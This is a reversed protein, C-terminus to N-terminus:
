ASTIHCHSLFFFSVGVHLAHESKLFPELSLSDLLTVLQLIVLAQHGHLFMNQTQILVFVSFCCLILNLLCMFFVEVGILIIGSTLQYLYDYLCGSVEMFSPFHPFGMGLTASNSFCFDVRSSRKRWQNDIVRSHTSTQCTIEPKM